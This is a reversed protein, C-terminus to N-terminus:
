RKSSHTWGGMKYKPQKNKSVSGGTKYSNKQGGYGYNMKRVFGKSLDVSNGLQTLLKKCKGKM